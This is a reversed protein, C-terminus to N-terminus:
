DKKKAKAPRQWGEISVQRARAVTLVGAPADQAIVSGAGITAGEGVEVPAVLVCNSGISARDRIVTHHKHAGDYNATISGAGFNVGGGVTTDGIYALHNAKSGRGLRSAKVEVFNGIHVEDDLASGPRVRAYPGIRCQAGIAADVLHSYPEITTQAGVTVNRLVCYPGVSVDDGLTVDGEFVCGVDIRVDRGCRLHGRIDIRAPDVISAGERMLADARRAMLIREVAALQARDNIGRVDREDDAVRAVVPVDQACAMAVIDTIYYEGQANDPTLAGVWQKMLAAPAAMVGTNIERIARQQPDADREEVIARVAGQADRVIRGLGEPDPVNATLVALRGAGADAVLDSLAQPPVLPIDGIAVLVVGDTPADALAIRVADGTGRPPDQLAFRVDPAALAQRVAGAEHGVVVTIAQPSLSRAAELVHAVVPRGALAHLVKPVASRM